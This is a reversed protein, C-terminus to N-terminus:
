FQKIDITGFYDIENLTKIIEELARFARLIIGLTNLGGSSRNTKIEDTNKNM